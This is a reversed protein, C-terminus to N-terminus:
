KKKRGCGAGPTFQHIVAAAITLFSVPRFMADLALFGGFGVFGLFLFAFL